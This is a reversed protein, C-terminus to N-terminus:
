DAGGPSPLRGALCLQVEGWPCAQQRAQGWEDCGVGGATVRAPRRQKKQICNNQCDSGDGDQRGGVWRGSPEVLSTSSPLRCIAVGRITGQLRSSVQPIETPPLPPLPYGQNMGSSHTGTAVQSHDPVKPRPITYRPCFDLM